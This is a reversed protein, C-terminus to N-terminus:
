AATSSRRRRKNVVFGLMGLGSAFLPLAAPLPTGPPSGCNPCPETDPTVNGLIVDNGCTMAWELALTTGLLGNENKILLTITHGFSDVTWDGGDVSSLNDVNNYQVAQGQRFYFPSSPDNPYTTFHGGANSLVVDTGAGAGTKLAFLGGTKDGAAFTGSQDGSGPLSPLAFAYDFKGATYVDANSAAGSPIGGIGGSKFFVAGYGTGDAPSTGPVGAYNTTIVIRLDNTAGGTQIRTVAVQDIGFVNSPGIVDGNPGGPAGPFGNYTDVGGWYTDILPGAAAPVSLAFFSMGVFACVHATKSVRGVM